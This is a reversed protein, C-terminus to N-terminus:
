DEDSESFRAEVSELKGDLWDLFGARNADAGGIKSKKRVEGCIQRQSKRILRLQKLCTRREEPRLNYKTALSNAIALTTKTYDVAYRIL